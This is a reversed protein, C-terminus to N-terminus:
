SRDVNHWRTHESNNQWRAISDQMAPCHRREGRHGFQPRDLTVARAPRGVQQQRCWPDPTRKIEAAERVSRAKAARQEAAKARAPLSPCIESELLEGAAYADVKRENVKSLQWKLEKEHSETWSQFGRERAAQFIQDRGQVPAHKVVAEVDAKRQRKFDAETGQAPLAPLRLVADLPEFILFACFAWSCPGPHGLPLAWPPGPHSLLALLSFLPPYADLCGHPRARNASGPAVPHAAEVLFVTASVGYSLLREACNMQTSM